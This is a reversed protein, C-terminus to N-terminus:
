EAAGTHGLCMLGWACFPFVKTPPKHSIIFIFTVKFVTFVFPVVFCVPHLSHMLLVDRTCSGAPGRREGLALLDCGLGYM